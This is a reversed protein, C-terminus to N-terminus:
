LMGVETYQTGISAIDNYAAEYITYDYDAQNYRKAGWSRRTKEYSEEGALLDIHHGTNWDKTYTM